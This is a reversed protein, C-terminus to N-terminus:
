CNSSLSKMLINKPSVEQRMEDPLQQRRWRNRIAVAVARKADGQGVIHRDLQEVIERPTLQKPRDKADGKGLILDLM